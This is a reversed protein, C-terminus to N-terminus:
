QRKDFPIGWQLISDGERALWGALCRELDNVLIEVYVLDGKYYVGIVKGIM